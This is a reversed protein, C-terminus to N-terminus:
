WGRYVTQLRSMISADLRRRPTKAAWSISLFSKYYKATKTHKRLGMQLASSMPLLLKITRAMDQKWFSGHNRFVKKQSCQYVAECSSKCMVLLTSCSITCDQAATKQRPRSWIKLPASLIATILLIETQEEAHTLSLHQHQGLLQQMNQDCYQQM